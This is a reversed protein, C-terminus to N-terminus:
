DDKGGFVSIQVYRGPNAKMDELLRALHHATSDLNQYLSPDHLLMGASGQGQNLLELTQNLEDLTRQATAVAQAINAQSLSDALNKVSESTASLNDVITPIGRGTQEVVQDLKASTGELSKLVVAVSALGQAILEQNPAGLLLNLSRLLTDVGLLISDAKAVIPDVKSTLSAVMDQEVRSPLKEGAAVYGTDSGIELVLAKTGLLDTSQLLVVTGKPIRYRDEVSFAVMLQGLEGEEFAIGRVQGIKKGNVLVPSSNTLGQVNAFSAKFYDERIFIDDGKLYGMGWVLLALAVTVVLGIKHVSQFKFAM